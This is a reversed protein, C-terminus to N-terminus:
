PTPRAKIQELRSTALGVHVGTIVFPRGSHASSGLWSEMIAILGREELPALIKLQVIVQELQLRHRADTVADKIDM